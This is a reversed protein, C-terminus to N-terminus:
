RVALNYNVANRNERSFNENPDEVIKTFNTSTWSSTCNSKYPHKQRELKIQFFYKNSNSYILVEPNFEFYFRLCINCGIVIVTNGFNVETVATSTYTSPSIDMGYEDVLPWADSNHVM